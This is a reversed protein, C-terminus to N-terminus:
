KSVIIKGKSAHRRCRGCGYVPGSKDCIKYDGGEIKLVKGNVLADAVKVRADNYIRQVTSRAVHMRVSAEEQSLGDLDILRLTEYEEVTMLMIERDHPNPTIPGFLNSEPLCCVKRGKRPRPM